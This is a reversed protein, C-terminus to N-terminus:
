LLNPDGVARIVTDSVPALVTGALGARPPLISFFSNLGLKLNASCIIHGAEASPSLGWNRGVSFGSSGRRYRQLRTLGKRKGAYRIAATELQSAAFQQEQTQGQTKELCFSFASLERNRCDCSDWRAWIQGTSLCLCRQAPHSCSHLWPAGTDPPCRAQRWWGSPFLCPCLYARPM